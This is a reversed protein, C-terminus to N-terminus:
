KCCLQSSQGLGNSRAEEEVHASGQGNSGALISKEQYLKSKNFKQSSAPVDNSPSSTFFDVPKLTIM